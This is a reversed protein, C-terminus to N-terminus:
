PNFYSTCHVVSAASAQSFLVALAVISAVSFKMIKSKQYTLNTSKFHHSLITPKFVVERTSWFKYSEKAIFIDRGNHARESTQFTSLRNIGGYVSRVTTNISKKKHNLVHALGTPAVLRHYSPGPHSHTYM